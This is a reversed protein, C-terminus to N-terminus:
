RAPPEVRESAHAAAVAPAASPTPFRTFQAQAFASPHEPFGGAARKVWALAAPETASLIGYPAAGMLLTLGSLSTVVALERARLDHATLAEGRPRVGLFGKGFFSLFYAAGLVMGFLATLGLGAHSEFAGLVILLEAVFGSTGPVAMSSLGLVFVFSTLLPLVGALGGLHTLETSGLRHQLFGALLFLGSSMLSFNILQFVAGQLGYLNLSSLGILVLGVHSISAYALLRRLNTQKLALLAGYVLGVSGLTAMVWAHAAAGEPALPVAFRLVGYAGLKLGTLVASVGAPGEMAVNPLWTHLPFLPMKVGFGLLFLLFVTTQINTPSQTALLALYDFTLGDPLPLERIQARNIALLMIGFLIPIGGALMLLTYQSAAHRRYPGIGWLSILFYIPLLALEWFVFFLVLDTACFIGVTISELWLLFALYLRPLSHVSTWSSLIVALTVLATCSPFFVSLGDVGVAYDVNIGPIWAHRETFQMEDSSFNFRLLLAVALLLELAALGFAFSKATRTNRVFALSFAGLSPLLILTSLHPFHPLM